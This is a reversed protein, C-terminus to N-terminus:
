HNEARLSVELWEAIPKRINVTRSGNRQSTREVIRKVVLQDLLAKGLMGGLHYRRETWDICGYAFLRRSGGGELQVGLRQFCIRGKETLKYLTRTREGRDVRQEELWGRSMIGDLLEVGAVGALHDYCTRARRIPSDNEVEYIAGKSKRPEIPSAYSSISALRMFSKLADAVANSKIAYIHQRGIVSVSVLGSERLKALNASVRPQDLGLSVVLESTTAPNKLLFRLLRVRNEDAM